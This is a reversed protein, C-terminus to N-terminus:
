VGFRGDPRPDHVLWASRWGTLRRPQARISSGPGARQQYYLFSRYEDCRGSHGTRSASEDAPSSGGVAPFAHCQACSNGNFTPGLGEGAEGPMNGTVSDVEMFDVMANNFFTQMDPTLDSIPKPM